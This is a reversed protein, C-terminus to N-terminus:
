ENMAENEEFVGTSLCQNPTWEAVTPAKCVRRNESKSGSRRCSPLVWLSYDTTGVEERFYNASTGHKVSDDLECNRREM